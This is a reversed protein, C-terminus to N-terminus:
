GLALVIAKFLRDKIQDMDPLEKFPVLNPHTKAIENKESGYKWGEAFKKKMWEDHLISDPCNRNKLILQVSDITNEQQWHESDVWKKQTFDGNVECFTKTAEHCVIAIGLLM